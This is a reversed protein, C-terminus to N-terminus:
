SWPVVLPHPTLTVDRGSKVGPFSATGMTCSASHAGPGTQVLASFRAGWRSEIGPGDLGYSTATGVVSGPGNIYSPLFFLVITDAV